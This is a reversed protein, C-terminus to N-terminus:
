ERLKTKHLLHFLHFLNHTCFLSAKQYRKKFLPRKLNSFAAESLQTMKSPFNIFYDSQGSVPCLKDHFKGWRLM